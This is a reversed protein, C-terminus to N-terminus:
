RVIFTTHSHCFGRERGLVFANEIIRPEYECYKPTSKTEWPSNICLLKGPPKGPTAARRDAFTTAIRGPLNGARSTERSGASFKSLDSRRRFGKNRHLGGQLAYPLRLTAAATKELRGPNEAKEIASEKMYRRWIKKSITDHCFSCAEM